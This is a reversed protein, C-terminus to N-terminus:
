EWTEDCFTKDKKLTFLTDSFMGEEIMRTLEKKNWSAEIYDTRSLEREFTYIIEYGSFKILDDINLLRVIVSGKNDKELLIIQWWESEKQLNLVYSKKLKRLFNKRGLEYETVAPFRFYISDNRFEYPQGKGLERTKHDVFYIKDGKVMYSSSTDVPYKLAMEEHNQIYSFYKKGIIITEEECTWVGRYARPFVYLNDQDVPQPTSLYVNDCSLFLPILGILLAKKLNISVTM